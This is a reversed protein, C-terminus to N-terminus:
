RQRRAMAAHAEAGAITSTAVCAASTVAHRAESAGQENVYLKVFASTDLYANM